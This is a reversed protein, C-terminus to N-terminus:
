HVSSHRFMPPSDPDIAYRDSPMPPELPIPTQSSAGYQWALLETPMDPWGVHPHISPAPPFPRSGGRSTGARSSSPIDTGRAQAQDSSPMGAPRMMPIRAETLPPMLYIHRYTAYDGEAVYLLADSGLMAGVVESYSLRDATRMSAPPVAPIDQSLYGQVQRLFREGLFWVRGVPGELLVRYRSIGSAGTYQLLLDGGLPAWPQWTIESHRVTDFYQRLRVLTERPRARHPGEFIFSYPTVPIGVVELEPALSPFYVYVWLQSFCHLIYTRFASLLICVTFTRQTHLTCTIFLLFTFRPSLFYRGLESTAALCIAGGAPPRSYLDTAGSPTVDMDALLWHLWLLEQTTNAFAHYEAETSSRATLSQKKLTDDSLLTGDLPTLRSQTELPTSTIKCDTLHARALLDSTYKVQSTLSSTSDYSIELGLFYSLPGLDKM